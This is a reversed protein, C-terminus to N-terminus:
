RTADLNRPREAPKTQYRANEPNPKAEEEPKGTEKGGIKM